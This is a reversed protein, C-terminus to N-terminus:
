IQLKNLAECTNKMLKFEDKTPSTGYKGEIASIIEWLTGQEGRGLYNGPDCGSLDHVTSGFLRGSAVNLRTALYQGLFKLEMKGGQGAEFVAEMDSIDIAGNSDTDPVLWDSAGDVAALFALIDTETYTSHKDWHKWFGLSGGLEWHGATLTVNIVATDSFYAVGGGMVGSALVLVLCM